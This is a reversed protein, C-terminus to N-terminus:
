MLAQVLLVAGGLVFGVGIIMVLVQNFLLEARPVSEGPRPGAPQDLGDGLRDRRYNVFWAGLSRWGRVLASGVIALLVGAGAEGLSAGVSV